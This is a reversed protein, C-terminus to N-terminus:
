PYAKPALGQPEGLDGGFRAARPLHRGSHSASGRRECIQYRFLAHRSRNDASIDQRVCAGADFAAGIRKLVFLAAISRADPGVEM